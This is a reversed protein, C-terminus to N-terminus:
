WLKVTPVDAAVISATVRLVPKIAFGVPIRTASKESKEPVGYRDIPVKVKAPGGAASPGVGQFVGRSNVADGPDKLTLAL